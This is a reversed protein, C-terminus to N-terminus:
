VLMTEWAATYLFDPNQWFLKQALFFFIESKKKTLIFSRIKIIAIIPDAALLAKFFVKKLGNNTHVPHKKPGQVAASCLLFGLFQGSPIKQFRISSFLQRSSFNKFISNLPTLIHWHKELPCFAFYTSCLYQREASVITYTRHLPATCSVIWIQSGVKEFAVGNIFIM